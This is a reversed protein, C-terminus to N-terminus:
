GFRKIKEDPYIVRKILAEYEDCIVNIDFRSALKQSNRRAQLLLDQSSLYNRIGDELAEIDGPSALIGNKNQQVLDVFGGVNYAVIALGAALAQVGVVSLGESLSPMLLIDSKGFTALVTKTDVWGPLTFRDALGLGNIHAKVQQYLPGDGMMVCKWDLDKVSNLIDVFVLLNKQAMFRGAFAIVPPNHPEMIQDAANLRIGNPIVQPTVHYNKEALSATFESVAAVAAAHKWIPKTFPFIWRFWRGTKEPVGGPVDGLHVTLIYPMRTIQHLMYAAFGAPVAFHVHILQPKWRHIVKLGAFISRLIFAGMGLLGVRFPYKRMSPLRIIRLNGATEDKPLGKYHATILTIEYGRQLLEEIIDKCAQGGGGGIPPYEHNLVLIRM